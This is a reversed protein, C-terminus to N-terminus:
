LTLRKSLLEELTSLYIALICRIQNYHLYVRYNDIYNKRIQRLNGESYLSGYAYKMKDQLSLHTKYRLEKIMSDSRKKIGSMILALKDRVEPSSNRKLIAILEETTIFESKYRHHIHKWVNDEGTRLCKSIESTSVNKKLLYAVEEHKPRAKELYEFFANPKNLNIPELLLFVSCRVSKLSKRSSFTKSDEYYMYDMPARFPIIHLKGGLHIRPIPMKLQCYKNGKSSTHHLQFKRFASLTRLCINRGFFRRARTELSEDGDVFMLYGRFWALESTLKVPLLIKFCIYQRNMTLDPKLISKPVYIKSGYAVGNSTKKITHKHCTLIRRRDLQLLKSSIVVQKKGSRSTRARLLYRHPSYKRVRNGVM